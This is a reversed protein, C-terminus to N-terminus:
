LAEQLELIINNESIGYNYEQSDNSNFVEFPVNNLTATEGSGVAVILAPYINITIYGGSQTANEVIQYVKSHGGFKVFDGARLANTPNGGNTTIISSSITGSYIQLQTAGVPYSTQTNYAVNQYASLAYVKSLDGAPKSLTPIIVSFQYLSGRQKQLFGMVENFQQRTLNAYEASIQWYQAPVGKSQRQGSISITTMTPAVSKISVRKFNNHTLTGPM